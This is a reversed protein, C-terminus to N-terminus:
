RFIRGPRDIEAYDEGKSLNSQNKLGRTSAIKRWTEDRIKERKRHSNRLKLCIAQNEGRTMANTDDTKQM